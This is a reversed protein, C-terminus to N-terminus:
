EYSLLSSLLASLSPLAWSMLLVYLGDADKDKRHTPQEIRGQGYAM